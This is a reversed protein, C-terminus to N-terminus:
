YIVVHEVTTISCCCYSGRHGGVVGLRKKLLGLGLGVGGLRKKLDLLKRYNDRGWLSVTFDLDLYDPKSIVYYCHVRINQLSTLTCANAYM